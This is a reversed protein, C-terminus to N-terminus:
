NTDNREGLDPGFLSEFIHAIKFFEERPADQVCHVMWERLKELEANDGAEALAVRRKFSRGQWSM